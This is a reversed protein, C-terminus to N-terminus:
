IRFYCEFNLERTHTMTFISSLLIYNQLSVNSQDAEMDDTESYIISNEDTSQSEVIQLRLKYGGDVM